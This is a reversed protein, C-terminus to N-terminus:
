VEMTDEVRHQCAPLLKRERTIKGRKMKAIEVVCVRCVAVPDVHDQHCLVPIPNKDGMQKVFLQRAADYITTARPIARGLSDTVPNGQSDAAPVAKKVTVSQGDIALTIEKDFDAATAPALRLLQGNVDRAFLGEEEDRLAAIDMFEDTM